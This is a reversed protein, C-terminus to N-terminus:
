ASVRLEFAAVQDVLAAHLEELPVVLAALTVSLVPVSEVFRRLEDVENALQVLRKRRPQSLTMEDLEVHLAALRNVIIRGTITAYDDSVEVMGALEDALTAYTEAVATLSDVDTIVALSTIPAATSM